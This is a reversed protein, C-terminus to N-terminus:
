LFTFPFVDNTGHAGIFGSAAAAELGIGCERLLFLVARLEDGAVTGGCRTSASKAPLREGAVPRETMTKGNVCRATNAQAQGSRGDFQSPQFNWLMSSAPM